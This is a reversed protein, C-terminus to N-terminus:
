SIPDGGSNWPARQKPRNIALIPFRHKSRSDTLTPMPSPDTELSSKKEPILQTLGWWSQPVPVRAMNSISDWQFSEIDNWRTLGDASLNRGSSIYRPAAEVDRHLSRQSSFRLIRCVDGQKAREEEFLQYVNMNGACIIIHRRSQNEDYWIMIAVVSAILDFIGIPLEETDSSTFPRIIYM